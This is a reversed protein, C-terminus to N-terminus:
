TRPPGSSSERSRPPRRSADPLALLRARGPSDVTRALGLDLVKVSGGPRIKVNSPKLDRHIIGAEHAAELGAAIQAAVALAEELPLPGEALREDLTQGEVLEMVLFRAGSQEELGHIAAINSHNLSALLRAEREFRLLREPDHQFAEPLAKIAVDRQLKPDRARYVEGMGGRGIPAIVEYPGVRRGTQTLSPGNRTDDETAAPGSSDSGPGHQDLRDGPRILAKVVALREMDELAEQAQALAYERTVLERWRFRAAHRAMM